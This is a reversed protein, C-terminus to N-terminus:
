SLFQDVGPNGDHSADLSPCAPIIGEGFRM